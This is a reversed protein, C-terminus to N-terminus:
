NKTFRGEKQIVQTNSMSILTFKYKSGNFRVARFSPDSQLSLVRDLM